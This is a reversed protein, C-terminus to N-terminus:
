GDYGWVRLPYGMGGLLFMPIVCLCRATGLVAGRADPVTMCFDPDSNYRPFTNVNCSQTTKPTQAVEIKRM